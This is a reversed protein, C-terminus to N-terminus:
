GQPVAAAEEGEAPLEPEDGPLASAFYIIDSIPKEVGYMVPNVLKGQFATSATQGGDLTYAKWCGRKVVADGLDRLSPLHDLEPRTTDCNINMTMYHRPGLMGLACRAYYDKIEGWPYYEPTVDVGDDILVPGFALSFVVDNDEIYQRMESENLGAGRYLFLMDGGATIFCTDANEPRFRVIGRQYVSVGCDRGHYYFDGSLALVANSKQAFESTREFWLSWPEDSSIKRRLQSGDAIFIESITAMCGKEPEQWLICLITEDLYCRIKTGYVFPLDPRWLLEQDGILAKAEPRELLAAVEAPDETILYGSEEPVSGQLADEPISYHLPLLPLEATAAAYLKEADPFFPYLAEENQIEWGTERYVYRLETDWVGRYDELHELRAELAERYCTRLLEPLYAGDEGYIESRRRAAAVKEELRQLLEERLGSGALADANLLTLRLPVRASAEGAEMEGTATYGWVRAYAQTLLAQEDEGSGAPPPSLPGLEPPAPTPSVAPPALLGGPAFRQWILLGLALILLILLVLLIIKLAKM